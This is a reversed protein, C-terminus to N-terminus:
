KALVEAHEELMDETMPAPEQTVPIYLKEDCNILKLDQFPALRGEPKHTFTEKFASESQVSISSTVSQSGTLSNNADQDCDLDSESHNGTNQRGEAEKVDTNEAGVSTDVDKEDSVNENDCEFFEEEDSSDDSNIKREASTMSLKRNESQDNQARDSQDSQISADGSQETKRDVSQESQDLKFASEMSNNRGSNSDSQNENQFIEETSMSRAAKSTSPGHDPSLAQSGTPTDIDGTYGKHVQERKKKHEICCNLM